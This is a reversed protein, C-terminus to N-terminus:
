SARGQPASPRFGADRAPLNAGGAGRAHAGAGRWAASATALGAAVALIHVWPGGDTTLSALGSMAQYGAFGAPAAFLSALLFRLLPSRISVFLARGALHVLLGTMFGTALVAAIGHNQTHLYLAAGVGVYLPLAFAALRFLLWILYLAAIGGLIIMLTM